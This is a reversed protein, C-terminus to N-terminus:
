LRLYLDAPEEVIDHITHTFYAVSRACHKIAHPFVMLAVSDTYIGTAVAFDVKTMKITAPKSSTNPLKQISINILALELTGVANAM